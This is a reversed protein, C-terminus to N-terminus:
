IKEECFPYIQSCGELLLYKRWYHWIYKQFKTELGWIVIVSVSLAWNDHFRPHRKLHYNFEVESDELACTVWSFHCCYSCNHGLLGMVSLSLWILVVTQSMVVTLHWWRYSNLILVHSPPSIKSDIYYSTHLSISGSM